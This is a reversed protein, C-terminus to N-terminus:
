LITATPGFPLPSRDSAIVGGFCFGVRGAGTDFYSDGFVFLQTYPRAQTPAQSQTKLAFSLLLVLVLPNV